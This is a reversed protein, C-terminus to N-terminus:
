WSEHFFAPFVNQMLIPWTILCLPMLHQILLHRWRTFRWDYVLIISSAFLMVAIIWKDSYLLYWIEVNRNSSSAFFTQPMEKTLWYIAKILTHFINAMNEASISLQKLFWLFLSQCFYPEIWFKLYFSFREEVLSYLTSTYLDGM